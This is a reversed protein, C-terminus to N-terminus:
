RVNRKRGPAHEAEAHIPDDPWSHKPYRRKLDKRVQAYTNAWFSALDDTIQETRMNPALLHLLVPARGGAIRPTNALGFLEQIRVALIPPKGAAYELEIQSGSPVRVRVPAERDLAALQRSTLRGQLNPLLRGHRLEAFSTCGQCLDPLLSALQEEDMPPWELEPMWRRLFDVRALFALAVPGLWESPKLRAAAERALIAGADADAPLASPAEDLVLDELRTRRVAIVRQRDPDFELDHTVFLQDAPLWDREVASAQRVLAESGGIEQVEVCLFLESQMVASQESLRVGRGGVMLARRSGPTRRRALRDPFAALLARGIAEQPSFPQAVPKAVAPERALLRLLQGRAKVILRVAEANIGGADSGRRGSREFEELLAVRDFVDSASHHEVPVQREAWRPFPDRESLMAAALASAEAQGMANGALVLRAIRPHVPLRVMQRGLQTLGREDVAGLRQLLRQARELSEVGPAEFWSFRTPDAEGWCLLELVPGALDVRFIEPVEFDALGQQERQTWLRLCVGPSTRGARGARQAASARSIRGVVLRNLGLAPDLVQRRALGSDVVATVGDITISTEAVNTALVVKRTASPRIVEQQRALALEGYLPLVALGAQQALASLQRETRHIERVGPLFVLVHGTTQAVAEAVAQAAAEELPRGRPHALYSLEVPFLRGESVLVPCNDLFQAVPGSELTASMVVIRLDPRVEAQARRVMALALDINMSREHFEDFVVCGVDELFPDDELRRLLLGDTMALIRTRPGSRSEFRVQYGVVDGLRTGREEAIRAAAARAALRRPQLLIISKEGMLGSDIVAPAVRTTKGAGPPARLVLCNNRALSAVLEGLLPDIPLPALNLQLSWPCPDVLM